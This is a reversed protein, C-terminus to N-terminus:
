PSVTAIRRMTLSASRMRFSTSRVRCRHRPTSDRLRPLDDGGAGELLDADWVRLVGAVEPLVDSSSPRPPVRYGARLARGLVRCLSPFGKLAGVASRGPVPTKEGVRARIGLARQAGVAPQLRRDDGVEAERGEDDVRGHPRELPVVEEDLLVVIQATRSATGAALSPAARSKPVRIRRCPQGSDDRERQQGQREQEAEPQGAVVVALGVVPREPQRRRGARDGLRVRLVGALRPERQDHLVDVAVEEVDRADDRQDVVQSAIWANRVGLPWQRCEPRPM